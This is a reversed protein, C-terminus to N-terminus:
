RELTATVTERSFTKSGTVMNVAVKNGAGISLCSTRFVSRRKRTFLSIIVTTLTAYALYAVSKPAPLIRNDNKLLPDGINM